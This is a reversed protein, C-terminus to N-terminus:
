ECASDLQNRVEAESSTGDDFVYVNNLNSFATTVPVSDDIFFAENAIAVAVKRKAEGPENAEILAFARKCPRELPSKAQEQPEPAQEQQAGRPETEQPPESSGCAVALTALVLATLLRKM